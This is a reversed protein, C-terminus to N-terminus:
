AGARFDGPSLLQRQPGPTAIAVALDENIPQQGFEVGQAMPSIVLGGLLAALTTALTSFTRPLFPMVM